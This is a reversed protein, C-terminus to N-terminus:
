DTSRVTEEIRKPSYGIKKDFIIGQIGRDAGYAGGHAYADKPPIIGVTEVKCGPHEKFQTWSNHHVHGCIWHRYTTKGWLKYQDDAMKGPLSSLKCTHGHAFGLLVKGRKVYQFPSDGKQVNIRPNDRYLQWVYSGIARGLIDDHNGPVNIFEVKKYKRLCADIFMRIIVFGADLWKGHRGDLDLKHKSRSTEGQINDAHFFDGTNVLVCEETDPLNSLLRKFVKRYVRDAINLDWDEGVEKSWTMLGIHPDGIPIVTFQDSTAVKNEFPIVPLPKVDAIMSEVIAGATEVQKSIHVNTKVWEMVRGTSSDDKHKHRVLTSYGSVLQNEPNNYDRDNAPDYGTAKLAKIRRLVVSHTMNYAKAIETATRGARLEERLEEHTIKKAAM